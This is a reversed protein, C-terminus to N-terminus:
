VDGMKHTELLASYINLLNPPLTNLTIFLHIKKLDFLNFDSYSFKSQHHTVMLKGGVTTNFIQAKHFHTLTPDQKAFGPLMPLSQPINPQKSM